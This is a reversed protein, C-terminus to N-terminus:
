CLQRKLDRLDVIPRPVVIQLGTGHEWWASLVLCARWADKALRSDALQGVLFGEGKCRDMNEGCLQLASFARAAGLVRDQWEVSGTAGRVDGVGAGGAGGASASNGDAFPVWTTM